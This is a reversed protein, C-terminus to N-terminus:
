AAATAAPPMAEVLPEVRTIHRMAVMIPEDFYESDIDRRAGIFISTRGIMVMDPIFIDYHTIEAVHIRLPIFPRRKLWKGLEEPSM